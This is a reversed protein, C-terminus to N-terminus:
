RVGRDTVGGAPSLRHRSHPRRERAHRLLPVTRESALHAVVGARAAPVQLPVLHDVGALLWELAVQAGHGKGQLVVHRGVHSSVRALSGEPALNARASEALLLPELLVRHLVRIESKIRGQLTLTSRHLVYSSKEGM